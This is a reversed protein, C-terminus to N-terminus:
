ADLPKQGIVMTIIFYPHIDMDKMEKRVYQMYIKIEETTWGLVKGYMFQLAGELDQNLAAYTYLGLDKMKPDKSWPSVPVKYDKVVINVFGAEKMGNVMISDTVLPQGIKRGAEQWLPGWQALAHVRKDLSGDDSHMDASTDFHEIYGGPKCCRYAEKYFAPWDKVTSTLWRAHIFDFFGSKYLWEKNFDDIDFRVNPPVWSPQIPSIDTGIVNCNPFKDAFDIAWLGTGTGLDIANELNKPLPADYLRGDLCITLAHHFIDLMENAKADNPAWYEGNTVSESHYTRGNLTRYNLISSSISATSSEIDSGITSDGDNGEEEPLGQEAWHAGSLPDTTLTTGANPSAPGPTPSKPAPTPSRPAPSQAKRKASSSM